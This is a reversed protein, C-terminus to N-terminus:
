SIFRLFQSKLADLRQKMQERDSGLSVLVETFQNASNRWPASSWENRFYNEVGDAVHKETQSQWQQARRASKALLHAPIDGLLNALWCEWDIDLNQLRERLAMVFASDGSIEVPGEYVKTGSGETDLNDKDSLQSDSANSVGLPATNTALLVLAPGSGSLQADIISVEDISLEDTAPHIFIESASCSIIVDAPPLHCIVRLSKGAMDAFINESSSDYNLATNLIKEAKACALVFVMNM